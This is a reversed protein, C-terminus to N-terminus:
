KYTRARRKLTRKFKRSKRSGGSVNTMVADDDVHRGEVHVGIPGLAIPAYAGTTDDPVLDHLGRAGEIHTVFKYMAYPPEWTMMRIFSLSLLTICKYKPSAPHILIDTIGLITAIAINFQRITIEFSAPDLPRYERVLIYLRLFQERYGNANMLITQLSDGWCASGSQKFSIKGHFGYNNFNAEPLVPLLSSIYFYHMTHMDWGAAYQTEWVPPGRTRLVLFGKENDGVYWNDNIKVYAVAHGFVAAPDPNRYEGIIGVNIYTIGNIVAEKKSDYTHAEHIHTGAFINGTHIIGIFTRLFSDIDEKYAPGPGFISPQSALTLRFTDGLPTLSKKRVIAM